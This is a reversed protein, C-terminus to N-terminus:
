RREAGEEFVKVLAAGYGARRDAEWGPGALRALAEVVAIGAVHLVTGAPLARRLPKPARQALNFGGVPVARDTVWSRVGEPWATLTDALVLPTVLWVKANAPSDPGEVTLDVPLLPGDVVRVRTRHAKGGLPVVTGHLARLADEGERSPAEADVAFGYGPALRFPQTIYFMRDSATLTDPDRAIGVRTEVKLVAGKELTEGPAFTVAGSVANLTRRAGEPRLLLDGGGKEVDDAFWPLAREIRELAQGTWHLRQPALDDGDPASPSWPALMGREDKGKDKGKVLDRPAPFLPEVADDKWQALLPGRLSLTGSAQAGGLLERAWPALKTGFDLEHFNAGARRFLATRVCGLFVSPMPFTSEALVNYGADFPRHDRFQLVDLPEFFLTLRSAV